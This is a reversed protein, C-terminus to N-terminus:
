VPVITERIQVYCAVSARIVFRDKVEVNLEAAEPNSVKWMTKRLEHSDVELTLYHYM